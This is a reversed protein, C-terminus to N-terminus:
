SRHRGSRRRGASRRPPAASRSDGPGGCPQCRGPFAAAGTTGGVSAVASGCLPQATPAVCRSWCCTPAPCSCGPVAAGGLDPLRRGGVSGGCASIRPHRALAPMVRCTARHDDHLDHLGRGDPDRLREHHHLQHAGLIWVDADPTPGSGTSIVLASAVATAVFLLALFLLGGGLFVTAIFRDEADGIRDQVASSGSSHLVPTLSSRSRLWSGVDTLGTSSSSTWIPLTTRFRCDSCCWAPVSYCPSSSERWRRGRHPSRRARVPRFCRATPLGAGEAQDTM